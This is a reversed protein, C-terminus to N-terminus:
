MLIEDSYSSKLEKHPLVTCNRVYTEPAVSVNEGLITISQDKVGTKSPWVGGSRAMTWGAPPTGEVRSWMGIRSNWGVVSQLVTSFPQLQSNDLIISEKVRCGKGIM